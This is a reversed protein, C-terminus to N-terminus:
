RSSCSSWSSWSCVYHQVVLPINFDMWLWKRCVFLVYLPKEWVPGLMEYTYSTAYFTNYLTFTVKPLSPIIYSRGWGAGVITAPQQEVSFVLRIFWGSSICESWGMSINSSCVKSHLFVIDNQPEYMLVLGEQVHFFSYVKPKIYAFTYTYLYIRINQISLSFVFIIRETISNIADQLVLRKLMQKQTCFM